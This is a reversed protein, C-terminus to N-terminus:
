SDLFGLYGAVLRIFEQNWVRATHESCPVQLSAGTLTHSRKWYVMDIVRMRDRGNRYRETVAVARRVAEYERQHLGPLTRIALSEVTRSVSGKSHPTGDGYAPVLAQQQQEAYQEKLAPYSRIVAKIYAWWSVRYM